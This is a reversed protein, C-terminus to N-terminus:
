PWWIPYVHHGQSIRIKMAIIKRDSPDFTLTTTKPSHIMMMMMMMMMM